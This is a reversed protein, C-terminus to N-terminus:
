PVFLVCVPANVEAGQDTPTLKGTQDDVKFVVIKNDKHGAPILWKGSPDLGMGRPLNVGAPKDEVHTLTGDANVSYLAVINDARSSLYVFKGSPHTIIEATTYKLGEPTTKTPATGLATLAGTEPDRAYTTVSLGMENNAYLFKEDPSFSAHRPGGGPPALGAPPDTPTLKGTKEDISFSWVKDSGLDCAYVFKGDSSPYISHAFARQQRAKNPGSGEFKVADAQAGLSGDPQVPYVVINGGGYNAVFVFKGSPHVSIHCTDRGGGPQTNLLKLSGDPQVAYAAATGGDTTLTAYLFKKDPSLALFNPKEAAVALTLPSLKGTESDLKGAYIGDGYTGLYFPIDKSHASMTALACAAALLGTRWRPTEPNPSM